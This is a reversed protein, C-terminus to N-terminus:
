APPPPADCLAGLDVLDVVNVVPPLLNSGSFLEIQANDDLWLDVSIPPRAPRAPRRPAARARAPRPNGRTGHDGHAKGRKAM